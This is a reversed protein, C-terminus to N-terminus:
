ATSLQRQKVLWRSEERQMGTAELQNINIYDKLTLLARWGMVVRTFPRYDWFKGKTKSWRSGGTIAMAIAATIARIFACYTYRNSLKIQMHLHNGVNALSNVTVGYKKAFKQFIRKVKEPNERFRFSWSGKARSSKLVLHMSQQTSLPRGHARGQRTNLLKGGYAKPLDKFMKIQSNKRAM